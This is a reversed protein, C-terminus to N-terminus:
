NPSNKKERQLYFPYDPRSWAFGLGYCQVDRAADVGCVGEGLVVWKETKFPFKFLKPFAQGWCLVQGDDRTACANLRTSRVEEFKGPPQNTVISFYDNGWCRIEDDPTIGCGFVQGLAFSKFKKVPPRARNKNWKTTLWCKIDGNERLGCGFDRGHQVQAFGTVEANRPDASGYVQTVAAPDLWTSFQGRDTFISSESASIESVDHLMDDDYRPWECFVSKDARVACMSGSGYVKVFGQRIKPPILRGVAVGDLTLGSYGEHNGNPIVVIEGMKESPGIVREECLWTSDPRKACIGRQATLDTFEGDFISSKPAKPYRAAHKCVVQGDVRLGCTSEWTRLAKTFQGELREIHNLSPPENLGSRYSSETLPLSRWLCDVHEEAQACISIGDFLNQYPGAALQIAPTEVRQETIKHSDPRACWLAGQTDIACVLRKDSGIATYRGPFAVSDQFTSDINRWCTIQGEANLACYGREHSVIRVFEGEPPAEYVSPQERHTERCRITGDERIQCFGFESVALKQEYEDIIAGSAGVDAVPAHACGGIVALLLLFLIRMCVGLCDPLDFVHTNM